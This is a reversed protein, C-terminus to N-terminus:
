FVRFKTVEMLKQDFIKSDFKSRNRIKSKYAYVTNVSLGLIQAIKENHTIGLRILAFIRTENNLLENKELKIQYQEEFLTNFESIFQPFLEIFAKDFNYLSDTKFPLLDYEQVFLKVKKLDSSKFLTQVKSIFKQFEDLWTAERFFFLGIYKEKVVNAEQLRLNAQQLLENQAAKEDNAQALSFNIFQLEQNIFDLENKALKLHQMQRYIIFLLLVVFFTFISLGINQWYLRQRQQNIKQIVAEEILPLVAGIQIKRQRAGFFFADENAKKILISAGEINGKKFFLEALKLFALNEKTCSQVDSIASKMLYVIASDPQQQQIYWDGLVFNVLADDRLGLKHKIFLQKLELVGGSALPSVNLFDDFFTGKETFKQAKKQYTKALNQYNKSFHPLNTFDAMEEYYRGLLGFYLSKQDNRIEQFDLSLLTDLGEKYLGAAVCINGFQIKADAIKELNNQSYANKLFIISYVFASDYNFNQYAKALESQLALQEDLSKTEKLKKKLIKIAQEKKSDYFDTQEIIEYLKTLDNQGKLSLSFCLFVIVCLNLLNFQQM